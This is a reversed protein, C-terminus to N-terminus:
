RWPLASGQFCNEEHAGDREFAALNEQPILLFQQPILGSSSAPIIRVHLVRIPREAAAGQEEAPELSVTAEAARWEGVAAGCLGSDWFTLTYHGRPFLTLTMSGSGYGWMLYNKVGVPGRTLMAGLETPQMAPLTTASAPITQARPNTQRNHSCGSALLVAVLAFSLATVRSMQMRHIM